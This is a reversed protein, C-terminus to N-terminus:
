SCRRVEEIFQKMKAKDKKGPHTEVGSSVDVGHPNLTRVVGAVNDPNLGGAIIIPMTVGQAVGWDFTHGSGAGPDLLFASAQYLKMCSVLSATTTVESVEIRKIVRRSLAECCSPPENGHLQIIDIGAMDCARDIKEINEDMFVGVTVTFPSVHKVIERAQAPTVRRRSPAFVFGIADTGLEIATRADDINTIGCIKVFTM